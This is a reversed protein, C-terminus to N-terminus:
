HGFSLSLGLLLSNLEAQGSPLIKIPERGWMSGIIYSPTGLTGIHLYRLTIKVDTREHRLITGSLAGFAGFTMDSVKGISHAYNKGAIQNWYIAPGVELEIGQGKSSWNLSPTVAITYRRLKIKEGYRSNYGETKDTMGTLGLGAGLGLRPWVRYKLNGSLFLGFGSKPYSTGDGSGFLTPSTGGLGNNKFHERLSRGTGLVMSGVAVDFYTRITSSEDSDIPSEIQNQPFPVGPADIHVENNQGWLGFVGILFVILNISQKM